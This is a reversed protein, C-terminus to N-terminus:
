VWLGNFGDRSKASTSNALAVWGRAAAPPQSATPISNRDHHCTFASACESASVSSHIAVLVSYGGAGLPPVGMCVVRRAKLAVELGAAVKPFTGPEQRVRVVRARYARSNVALM